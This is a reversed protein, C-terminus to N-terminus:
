KEPAHPDFVQEITGNFFKFDGPVTKSLAEVLDKRFHDISIKRFIRYHFTQPPAKTYKSRLLIYVLHHHDSIGTELSNSKQFSMSKNSLTLDISRGDGSKFCTPDHLLSPLSFFNMFCAIESQTAVENLDSM